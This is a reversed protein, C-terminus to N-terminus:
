LCDWIARQVELRVQEFSQDADIEVVRSTNPRRPADAAEIQDDSSGFAGLMRREGVDVSSTLKVLLDPPRREVASCAARERELALRLVAVAPNRSSERGRLAELFSTLDCRPVQDMVVIRGLGRARWARRARARAARSAALIRMADRTSMSAPAAGWERRAGAFREDSSANLPLVAVEWALWNTIDKALRSAGFGAPDVFAVTLGGRPPTRSSTRPESRVRNAVAEWVAGAEKTWRLRRARVAGYLRYEGLWEASRRFELLQRLTPRSSTVIAVLQRAAKRGLLRAGLQLIRQAEVREALWRLERLAHGRLYERGLGAFAVDRVRIKLAARVVLLLAELHPDAVYIGHEEDMTRTSLVLEEWPLRYGKLFKEGVTLQYHVHLHVMTGTRSDFGLYDEIGPYGRGPGVVFRKCGSEALVRTLTSEAARDVLLDLDTTGNMSAQLHENSKWHCYRVGQSHLRAFLDTLFRLPAASTADSTSAAPLQWRRAGWLRPGSLSTPPLTIVSEDVSM